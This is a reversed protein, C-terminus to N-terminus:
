PAPDRVFQARKKPYGCSLQRCNAYSSAVHDSSSSTTCCNRCARAGCVCMYRRQEILSGMCLFMLVPSGREVIWRSTVYGDPQLWETDDRTSALPEGHAAKTWLARLHPPRVGWNERQGRQIAQQRGKGLVVGPHASSSM